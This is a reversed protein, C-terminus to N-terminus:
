FQNRQTQLINELFDKAHGRILIPHFYLNFYNRLCESCSTELGCCDNSVHSLAEHFIEPLNEAIREVHGAGGPVTDYIVTSFSGNNLLITGDLDNRRISLVRVAGEILAYVVSRFLSAQTQYDAWMGNQIFRIDLVDTMFRHALMAELAM